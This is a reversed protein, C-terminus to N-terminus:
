REATLPCLATAHASDYGVVSWPGAHADRPPITEGPVTLPTTVRIDTASRGILLERAADEVVFRDQVTDWLALQDVDFTVTALTSDGPAVSVRSFGRLARLPTPFRLASSRRTPLTPPLAPP